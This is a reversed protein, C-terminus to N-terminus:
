TTALGPLKSIVKSYLEVVGWEKIDSVQGDDVEATIPQGTQNYAVDM